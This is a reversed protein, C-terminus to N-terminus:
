IALRTGASVVPVKRKYNDLISNVGIATAKQAVASYEVRYDGLTEAKIGDDLAQSIVAGAIQTAVLQIDSPASSSYRFKGVVKINRQDATFDYIAKARSSQNGNPQVLEIYDYPRGIDQANYPKLFYDENLIQAVKDVELSAISVAEGIYIKKEGNGDFYRTTDADQAPAEFVRKGFTEEGCYNEIYAQTANIAMTIYPDLSADPTVGLFNIILAKTTYM